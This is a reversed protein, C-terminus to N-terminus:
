SKLGLAERVQRNFGYIDDFRKVEGKDNVAITFYTLHVPLPVALKITREGKGIMGRMKQESWNEPGLVREALQFPKDVRVCGHSFARKDASFMKRNPTDHLYVAHQNPFLFKIFGLANREGPPQRVTINGNGSRIVQYGRKAAYDPDQALGPLIENKMISPPITWSPNVVVTQMSGSFIPTPSQAKGVIVKTQDVVSGDAVIKLEYEPINVQIYREGLEPPLWRWREMNAIIDNALSRPNESSERLALVTQNTLDGSAKLGKEKQFTAVAAAVVDDYTDDSQEPKELGFRARILPVRDDRMGVKLVQGRTIEQPHESPLAQRIDALKKKLGLYGPHQPNYSELAKGADDHQALLSLIDEAKPLELAPTINKSLRTPNLRAGRADRAYLITSATLALEAQALAEADNKDNLTPIPYDAPDLADQAARELQKSISLAAATWNGQEIWLPKFSRSEYFSVISQRVDNPLRPSLRLGKGKGHDALQSAIFQSLGNEVPSHVLSSSPANIKADPQQPNIAAKEHSDTKQGSQQTPSVETSSDSSPVASPTPLTPEVNPAAPVPVVVSSSQDLIDQPAPHTEQPHFLAVTSPQMSSVFPENAHAYGAALAAVACFSLM